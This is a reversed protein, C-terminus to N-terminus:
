IIGGEKWGEEGEGKEERKMVYGKVVWRSVFCVKNGNDLWNSLHDGTYSHHHRVFGVGKGGVTPSSGGVSTLSVGKAGMTPSSGGVTALSVGKAM